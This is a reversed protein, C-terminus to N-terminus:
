CSNDDKYKAPWGKHNEYYDEMEDDTNNSLTDKPDEHSTIIHELLDVNRLTNAISERHRAQGEERITRVGGGAGIGGQGPRNRISLGNVLDLANVGVSANRFVERHQHNNTCGSPQSILLPLAAHGENNEWINRSKPNDLNWHNPVLPTRQNVHLFYDELKARQEKEETCECYPYFNKPIRSEPTESSSIIDSVGTRKTQRSWGRWSWTWETRQWNRHEGKERQELSTEWWSLCCLLSLDLGCLFVNM